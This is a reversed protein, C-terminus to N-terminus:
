IIDDEKTNRILNQHKKIEEIAEAAFSDTRNLVLAEEFYYIALSDEMQAFYILGMNHYCKELKHKLDVAKLFDALAGQNQELSMKCVGRKFYYEGVLASDGEVKIEELLKLALEFKDESYYRRALEFKEYDTSEPSKKQNSTRIECSALTLSIALLINLRKM